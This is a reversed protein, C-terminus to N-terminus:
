YPRSGAFQTRHMLRRLPLEYDRVALHQVSCNDWMLFDGVQWKHRYQFEPKVTHTALENLLALAEDEPMGEIGICEGTVVYLCKRGTLPHTRVVPHVVDPHADKQDQSMEERDSVSVKARYAHKAHYSHIAKLGEIRKKMSESLADYAASASAFLTDGLVDGNNIPIEKAYLATGRPPLASWSMDTHWTQGADALGINKNNKQINSVLLIEPHDELSYQALPFSGVDGFRGSFAIQQDPSFDQNRFFIVGHKAYTQDIKAFTEANITRALDVGSIEAGLHKACPQVTFSM